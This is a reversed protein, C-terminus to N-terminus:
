VVWSVSERQSSVTPNGSVLYKKSTAKTIGLSCSVPMVPLNKLPLINLHFQGPYLKAPLPMTYPTGTITQKHTSLGSALALRIKCLWILFM